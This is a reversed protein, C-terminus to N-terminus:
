ISVSFCAKKIQHRSSKTKSPKYLWSPRFAIKNEDEGWGGRIQPMQVSPEWSVDSNPPNTPTAKNSSIPLPNRSNLTKCRKLNLIGAQLELHPGEAALMSGFLGKGRHAAKIM